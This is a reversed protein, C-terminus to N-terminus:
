CTTAGVRAFVRRMTVLKLFSSTQQELGRGRALGEGFCQMRKQSASLMRAILFVASRALAQQGEVPRKKSPQPVYQGTAKLVQRILRQLVSKAMANGVAKGLQARSLMGHETRKPNFGQARLLENSNLRRVHHLAPHRGPTRGARRHGWTLSSAGTGFGRLSSFM